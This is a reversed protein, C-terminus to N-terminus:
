SSPSWSFFTGASYKCKPATRTPEGTHSMRVVVVVKALTLHTHEVQTAVAAVKIGIMILILVQVVVVLDVKHVQWPRVMIDKDSDEPMLHQQVRQIIQELLSDQVVELIILMGVMAVVMGTQVQQIIVEPLEVM